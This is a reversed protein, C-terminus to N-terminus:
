GYRRLYANLSPPRGLYAQLSASLSRKGAPALLEELVCQAPPQQGPPATLYHEFADLAYAEALKYGFYSAEYGTVLYDFSEIFAEEDHMTLLGTRRTAAMALQRLDRHATVECHAVFDFLSLRLQQAQSVAQWSSRSHLWNQVQQLSAQQGTQVHRSLIHLTSASWCWQEFFKGVFECGDVGLADIAVRNLRRHSNDALIQHLAHGFEHLLKCLDEHTLMPEAQGEGPELCCSVLAVPLTTHNDVHRPRMPYFYPWPAKLPRGFLDLYIYGLQEGDIYFHLAQVKSDWSLANISTARIGFERELLQYIGKLTEQLPFYAAMIQEADTGDTRRAQQAFYALDWAGLEDIGQERALHALLHLEEKAKTQARQALQALLAEVEAVSYDHNVWAAMSAANDRGLLQAREQRLRLLAQLVPANDLGPDGLSSALSAAARYVKERLARDDAYALITTVTTERLDLQWHGGDDALADLAADPLGALAARETLTCTWSGRATDLNALFQQELASIAADTKQLQELEAPALASGALHFQRLIQALILRQDANTAEAELRRYGDLLQKNGLKTRTWTQLLQDCAGVAAAWEISVSAMPTLAHFTDELQQDLLEIPLVFTDWAPSAAHDRVLDELVTVSHEFLEKFAPELQGVDLKSYDLLVCNDMLAFAATM